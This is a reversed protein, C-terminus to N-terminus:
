SNNYKIVGPRSGRTFYRQEDFVGYNPLHMKHYVGRVMGGEVVALGNYLVGGEPHPFGVLATMGRPVDEAFAELTSQVRQIFHPRLLLDEPPCGSVALEPFVLVQVYEDKAEELYRRM